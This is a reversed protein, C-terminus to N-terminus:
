KFYDNRPHLLKHCSMHVLMYNARIDPGGKAKSVKHHRQIPDGPRSPKGCRECLGGLAKVDEAHSARFGSSYSSKWNRRQIKSVKCGFM